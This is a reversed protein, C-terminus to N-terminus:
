RIINLVDLVMDHFFFLVPRGEWLLQPLRPTRNLSWLNYLPRQGGGGGEGWDAVSCLYATLIKSIFIASCKQANLVVTCSVRCCFMLSEVDRHQLSCTCLIERFLILWFKNGVNWKYLELTMWPIRDPVVYDWFSNHFGSKFGPEWPHWWSFTIFM